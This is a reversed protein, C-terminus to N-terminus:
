CKKNEKKSFVFKLDAPFLDPNLEHPDYNYARCISIIARAPLSRKGEKWLYIDSAHENLDRALKRLSKSKKILDNMIKMYTIKEEETM